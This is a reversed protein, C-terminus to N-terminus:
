ANLFGLCLYAYTDTCWGAMLMAPLNYTLASYDTLTGYYYLARYNHTLANCYVLAGHTAM